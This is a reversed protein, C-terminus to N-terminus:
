GVPKIMQGRETEGCIILTIHYSIIYHLIIYYIRLAELPSNYVEYMM